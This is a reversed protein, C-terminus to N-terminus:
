YVKQQMKPQLRNISKRIKTVAEQENYSLLLDDRRTGSKLIDIAPFHSTRFYKSKFWNWIVPEKLNRM